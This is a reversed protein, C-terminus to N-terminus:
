YKLSKKIIIHQCKPSETVNETAKYGQEDLNQVIYAAKVKDDESTPDYFIDITETINM